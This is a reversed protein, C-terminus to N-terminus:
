FLTIVALVMNHVILMDVIVILIAPLGFLISYFILNALFIIGNLIM